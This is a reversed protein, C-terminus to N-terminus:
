SGILERAAILLGVTGVFAYAAAVLWFTVPNSRRGPEAGIVTMPMRGRMLGLTLLAFAVLAIGIAIIASQMM